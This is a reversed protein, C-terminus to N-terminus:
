EEEVEDAFGDAQNPISEDDDEIEVFDGVEIDPPDPDYFTSGDLQYLIGLVTINVGPNYADVKAEIELKDEPDTRKVVTALIDDNAIEVGTIRVYDVRRLDDISFPPTAAGTEDEFHTQNNIHVTVATPGSTAPYHVEFKSNPADVTDVYSRLRTEEEDVEVEKAILKGAVIEGEVEINMGDLLALGAIGSADVRLNGILFNDIGSAIDSVVGQLKIDDVDEDFDDDELEIETALVSTPTQIIGKVEVNLTDALGGPVDVQTSGNTRITVGDLQFIQGPAVGSPVGQIAGRLEVESGLLMLDEKYEVYTANITTPSTRFGSIEVVDDAAISNFGFDPNTLTGKFLTAIDDVTVAQGFVMFTKQTGDPNAVPTASVPGEIEDDYFVKLAKGTYVGNSTEVELTIVMGLALDDQDTNTDGDVDFQSNKIDFKAGNVYVSGFGTIKGSVIGTGGVGTTIGTGGIGVTTESGDGGCAVLLSSCMVLLGIAATLKSTQQRTSTM